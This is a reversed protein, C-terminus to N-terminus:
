QAERDAWFAIEPRWIAKLRLFKNPWGRAARWAEYERGLDSHPDITREGLATIDTGGAPAAPPPRRTWRRDRLWGGLHDGGLDLRGAGDVLALVARQDAHSLKRWYPEAWGRAGADHVASVAAFAREFAEDPDYAAEIPEASSSRESACRGEERSDQQPQGLHQIEPPLPPLTTHTSQTTLTPTCFGAGKRAGKRAGKQPALRAAQQVNEPDIRASNQVKKARIPATQQVNESGTALRFENAMGRGRRRTVVMHGRCELEDVAADVSRLSMGAIDALDHRGLWTQGTRNNFYTGILIAVRLASASLDTDRAMRAHWDLREQATVYPRDVGAAGVVHLNARTTV